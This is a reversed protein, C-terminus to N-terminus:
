KATSSAQALSPFEGGNRRQSPLPYLSQLSIAARSFIVDEKRSTRWWLYLDLELFLIALRLSSFLFPISLFFVVTTLFCNCILFNLTISGSKVCDRDGQQIWSVAGKDGSPTCDDFRGCCILQVSLKAFSQLLIRPDGVTGYGRIPAAQDCSMSNSGLSKSM